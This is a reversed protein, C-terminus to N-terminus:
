RLAKYNNFLYVSQQNTSSGEAIKLQNPCLIQFGSPQVEDIVGDSDWPLPIRLV